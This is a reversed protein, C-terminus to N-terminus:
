ESWIEPFARDMGIGHNAGKIIKIKSDDGIFERTIHPQIIADNEAVFHVQPIKLYDDRWDNLDLSSDLPTLKNERTWRPHDLNGNVTILKKVKIDPHLAAVLGRIQAGGSFGILILDRGVAIQKIADATSNVADRSLRAGTWDAVNCVDDMVYQCPRAMYVVDPAPDRFAMKRVFDDRPTPDSTANGWDNFAHGDGEIYVRVPARTDSIKRMTHITFHATKIKPVPDLGIIKNRAAMTDIVVRDLGRVERAKASIGM